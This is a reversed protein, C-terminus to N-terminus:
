QWGRGNLIKVLGRHPPANEWADLSRGFPDTVEAKEHRSFHLLFHLYAKSINILRRLVFKIIAPGGTGPRVTRTSHELTNILRCRGHERENRLKIYELSLNGSRLVNWQDSVIAGRSQVCLFEPPRLSPRRYGFGQNLRRPLLNRKISRCFLLMYLTRFSVLLSPACCCRRTTAYLSVHPSQAPSSIWEVKVILCVLCKTEIAVTIRAEM